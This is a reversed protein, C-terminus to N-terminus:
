QKNNKSNYWEDFSITKVEPTISEDGRYFLVGTEHWVKFIEDISLLRPIAEINIGWGSVRGDIVAAMYEKLAELKDIYPSVDIM